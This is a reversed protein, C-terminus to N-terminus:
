RPTNELAAEKQSRDVSIRKNMYSEAVANAVDAARQPDEDYFEITVMDSRLAAQTELNAQLRRLAIQRTPTNWHKQLELMDVVPYLTEAKTITDIETKMWQESMVLSDFMRKEDFVDVKVDRREIRMEVRGRYKRPMIYTIILSVAFVLILCSFILSFRNRIVQWAELGQGQPETGFSNM